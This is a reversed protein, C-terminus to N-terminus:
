RPMKVECKMGDAIEKLKGKIANELGGVISSNANQLAEKMAREITSHLHKDILHEIRTGQAKWYSDGKTKPKGDSSVPETMYSDARHLLYETFTQPEGKKEGWETTRQLVINEIRDAVVPLVHADAIASVTDDISRTIHKDLERRFTSEGEFSGEEDTYKGHLMEHVITGTVRDRLEDRTMGILELTGKDM